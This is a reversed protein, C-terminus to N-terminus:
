VANPSDPRSCSQRSKKASSTTQDTATQSRPQIAVAIVGGPKLMQRLKCLCDVPNEWFHISNITFIKDFPADFSPPNSASGVRLAVRGSRVAEANRRVAQKVMEESHDVGAVFGQRAIDSVMQISVGPGFGVVFVRDTPGVQLLSLVWRIREINSPRRAMIRGALYGVFGTPRGFQARLFRRLSQIIPGGGPSKPQHELGPYSQTETAKKSPAVSM